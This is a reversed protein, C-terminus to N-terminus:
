VPTLAAAGRPKRLIRGVAILNWVVTALLMLLLGFQWGAGAPDQGDVLVWSNAEDKGSARELAGRLGRYRAGLEAVQTLRGAVLSPPVFRAGAITPPVRYALWRRVGDREGVIAVHYDDEDLLRRFRVRPKAKVTATARAYANQHADSLTIEALAGLEVPTQENLAYSAAARLQWALLGAVLLTVVMVLLTLTRARRTPPPLAELSTDDDALADGIAEASEVM